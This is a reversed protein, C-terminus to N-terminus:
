RMQHIKLANRLDWVVGGGYYSDHGVRISYPVEFYHNILDVNVTERFLFTGVGTRDYTFKGTVPVNGHEILFDIIPWLHETKNEQDASDALIRLKKM